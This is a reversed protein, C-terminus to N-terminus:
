PIHIAVGGHKHGTEVYHHAAQIEDLTYTRDLVPTIHGQEILISIRSLRKSDLLLSGDDISAKRTMDSLSKEVTVRFDSSKMKGVTDLFVDYSVLQNIAEKKTYDLLHDVGLSKVLDFHKESCVGTVTAGLHKCYQLAMTGSNSSAGYIMVHDGEKVGAEEVCQFGLLGGYSAATAEEHTINPPKIAMCGYKPSDIEKMCKYQAYTGLSFGTMGYVEDNPKFQNISTGVSEIVGSYVIGIVKKRPRFIGLMIRMPIKFNLPIDIGRIYLDSATVASAHLRILVEDKKPIPKPMEVPQLVEPPGYKVCQVAKM